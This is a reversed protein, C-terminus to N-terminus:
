QHAEALTTAQEYGGERDSFYPLRMERHICVLIEGEESVVSGETGSPFIVVPYKLGRFEEAWDRPLDPEQTRAILDGDLFLLGPIPQTDLPTPEAKEIWGMCSGHCCM